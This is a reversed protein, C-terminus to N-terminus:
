VLDQQVARIAAELRSHAGLKSMVAELHQAVVQESLGLTEGIRQNTKGIVVLKLVSSEQDTLTVKDPQKEQRRGSMKAAVRRSIWFREGRAVGRVAQILIHPAEEKTIYGAAGSDLMGQIYETDEHASLALIRVSAGAAQLRQAVEIGNLGPMEIDLLLVDPDVQEVLRLAEAGNEAEAVIQIDGAGELVRRVAARVAPHDDALVVRTTEM